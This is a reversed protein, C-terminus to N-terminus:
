ELTSEQTHIYTVGTQLQEDAWRWTGEGAAGSIGWKLDGRKRSDVADKV